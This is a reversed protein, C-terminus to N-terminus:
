RRPIGKLVTMAYNRLRLAMRDARTTSAITHSAPVAPYAGDGTYGNEILYWQPTKAGWVAQRERELEQRNEPIDYVVEKFIRGGRLGHHWLGPIHGIAEYDDVTGMTPEHLIGVTGRAGQVDLPGPEAINQLFQPLDFGVQDQRSSWQSQVNNRVDGITDVAVTSLAYPALRLAEVIQNVRKKTRSADAQIPM